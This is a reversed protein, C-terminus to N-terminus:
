SGGGKTSATAEEEVGAARAIAQATPISKAVDVKVQPEPDTSGTYPTDELSQKTQVVFTTRMGGDRALKNRLDAYSKAEGEETFAAVVGRHTGDYAVVLATGYDHNDTLGM